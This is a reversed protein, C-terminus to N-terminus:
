AAHKEAPTMYDISMHLRYENYTEIAERVMKKAVKYSQLKDGLMLEDKLIGNVREALSNEYVHNEETMSIQMGHKKLLSVYAKSCYQIGRDSHHVIGQTRKTKGIAKKLAKLSGEISLSNSLAWGVIKRSYM